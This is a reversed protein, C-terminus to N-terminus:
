GAAAEPGPVPSDPQQERLLVLILGMSMYLVILGSVWAPEFSYHALTCLYGAFLAVAVPEYLPDTRRIRRWLYLSFLGHISVFLLLGVPGTQYLLDLFINHTTGQIYIFTGGTTKKTYTLDDGLGAGLVPHSSYNELAQRYAYYRTDSDSSMPTGFSAIREKLMFVVRDAKGSFLFFACGVGVALVSVVVALRLGIGIVGRGRNRAMITVVLLPSLLAEAIGMRWGSFCMMAAALGALGLAALKVKRSRKAMLLATCYAVLLALSVVEDDVLLRPFINIEDNPYFFNGTVLRYLGFLLAIGCGALLAPAILRLHRRGYRFGLPVLFAWAYFYLRRFDGVVDRLVLGRGVGNLASFAGWCTGAVLLMVLLREQRSLELIPATGRRVMSVVTQLAMAGLLFILFDGLYVKFGGLPIPMFDMAQRFGLATSFFGLGAWSAAPLLLLGVTGALLLVLLKEKWVGALVLVTLFLYGGAHTLRTWATGPPPAATTETAETM